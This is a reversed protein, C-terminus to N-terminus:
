GPFMKELFKRMQDCYITAFLIKGTPAILYQTPIWNIHYLTSITTDAWKKLESVQINTMGYQQIATEWATKTTDFSIGIFTVDDSFLKVTEEVDKFVAQCDPCWSAWFDLVVYKGKYDSLSINEGEPTPLTFDPATEGIQLLESIYDETKSDGCSNTILGIMILLSVAIAHSWNTLKKM